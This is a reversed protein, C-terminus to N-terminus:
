ARDHLGHLPNGGGAMVDEDPNAHRCTIWLEMASTPHPEAREVGALPRVTAAANRAKLAAAMARLSNPGGARVAADVPALDRGIRNPNAVASAAEVGKGATRLAAATRIAM